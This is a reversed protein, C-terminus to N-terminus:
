MTFAFPIWIPLCTLLPSLPRRRSLLADMRCLFSLSTMLMIDLKIDRSLKLELSALIADLGM